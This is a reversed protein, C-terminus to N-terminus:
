RESSGAPRVVYVEDVQRQRLIVNHDIKSGHKIWSFQNLTYRGHKMSEFQHRDGHIMDIM